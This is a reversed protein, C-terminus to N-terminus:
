MFLEFGEGIDDADRRPKRESLMQDLTPLPQGDPTRLRTTEGTVATSTNAASTTRTSARASSQKGGGRRAAAKAAKEDEAKAAQRASAEQAAMLLRWQLAETELRPIGAGLASLIRIRQEKQQVIAKDRPIFPDIRICGPNDIIFQRQAARHARTRACYADFLHDPLMGLIQIAEARRVRALEHFQAIRLDIQQEEVNRAPAAVTHWNVYVPPPPEEILPTAMPLMRAAFLNGAGYLKIYQQEFVPMNVFDSPTLGLSRFQSGYSQADMTESGLIVRNQANGALDDMVAALQGLNQHVVTTGIRMARLQSFIINAMGPNQAFVIQAEDIVVPWDPRQSEPVNTRSLAAITMQTLLLTGAIAAIQGETARIGALLIGGTDMARRLDISCGPAVLMASLEPYTLLQDLRREFASLSSKQSEPMEEFRREWFDKVQMNTVRSCVEARYDSDGFFRILHMMTARPEGELLALMGMNAFQKIGVSENFKPDLTAFVQLVTSALKSYDLGLGRGFAPSLLNMSARLDEGTVTSGGLDLITVDKERNLPILPLTGNVLDTGKCDLAMFGAGGQLLGKFLNKLWESKGRGMPATVHLIYRLDAYPLGIPAWTGDSREGLGLVLNRPDSPDIFAKGPADIWRAMIREVLTGMSETPPMWLTAIEAASLIM